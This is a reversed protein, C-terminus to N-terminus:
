RGNESSKKLFDEGYKEQLGKNIEEAQRRDIVYYALFAVFYVGGVDAAMLLVGGLSFGIWDFWVGVPIMVTCLALYHLAFKIYSKTRGDEEKPLLLVTVLTTAFGCFLIKWFISVPIAEVGALTYNIGCIITVGTTIYLFWKVFNSLRKM